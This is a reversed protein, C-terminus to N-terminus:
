RPTGLPNGRIAAFGIPKINLASKVQLLRGKISEISERAAAATETLNAKLAQKVHKRTPRAIFCQQTHPSSPLSDRAWQARQLDAQAKAMSNNEQGRVKQTTM